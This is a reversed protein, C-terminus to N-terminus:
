ADLSEKRDAAIQEEIMQRLQGAVSRNHREAVKTFQDKVEPAVRTGVLVVESTASFDKKVKM